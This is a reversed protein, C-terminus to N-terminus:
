VHARGIQQQNHIQLISAETVQRLSRADCRLIGGDAYMAGPLRETTLDFLRASGTRLM